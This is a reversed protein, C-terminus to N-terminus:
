RMKITMLGLALTAVAVIWMRVVIKPESFGKFKFDEHLPARFFIRRGLLGIGIYDQIFVSMVELLFIFGLVPFLLEQKLLVYITGMVGGLYMSGCDGMFVTAPYTNYWLFGLLSGLMSFCVVVLESSHITLVGMGSIHFFLFHKPWLANGLIYAMIGLGLYSTFSSGTALGDMGDAFNVANAIFVVVLTVFPIQLYSIPLPDKFFPISLTHRLAEPHPSFKSCLLLGLCLGFGGQVAYKVARSIGADHHGFRVKLLDDRLGLPFFCLSALLVAQVYRDTLNCLLLISLTTGLFILIGGMVPTGEKSSADVMYSRQRNVWGIRTFLDCTKPLFYLVFALSFLFAFGARSGIYRHFLRLLTAAHPDFYEALHYIM